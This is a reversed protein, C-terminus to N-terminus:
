ASTNVTVLIHMFHQFSMSNCLVCNSSLHVKFELIKGYIIIVYLLYFLIMKSYQCLMVLLPSLAAFHNVLPMLFRSMDTILQTQFNVIYFKLDIYVIIQNKACM